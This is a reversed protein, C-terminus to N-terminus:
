SIEPCDFIPRATAVDADKFVLAGVPCSEVMVAITKRDANLFLTRDGPLIRQEFGRGSLTMVPAKILTEAIRVCTRCQICKHGDYIVDPYIEDRKYARCRGAYKGQDAGTMTAYNRLRCDMASRCGCEICRGAEADAEEATLGGEVEAFSRIRDEPALTRSQVRPTKKRNTFIKERIEDSIEMAHSYRKTEGLVPEGSLFQHISVAARRGAAVAHVATGPGEVCDGGAFVGPLPTELTQEDVRVTGQGSGTRGNATLLQRELPNEMWGADVRQGAAIILSDCDVSVAEAPDYQPSFQGESDYVRVCRMLELGSVEDNRCFIHKIGWGNNIKIGEAMAARIEEDEAPMETNSELCYVAVAKAGKRLATRASDMAVGGGGIVIVSPGTKKGAGTNHARLYSIASFVNEATEGALDLSRPAQAGIGFFVADYDQRLKALSIDRGIRVNARLDIGMYELYSLERSVVERPLRYEPIGYRLMGGPQENQDFVTCAQGLIRLYYAASLGAPGAGVIAVRKGGSPLMQPMVDQKPDISDFAYRKLRCIDVPDDLLQRRCVAECPRHCIRGLVGPFPVACRIIELAKRVEGRGMCSIFGPIDIGAPCADACPAACDGLHDSLLLEICTQRAQKVRSTATRVVMGNLVETSCAPVLDPVGDVEVVCMYCVAEPVLRRSHCFTPIFVGAKEAAALITTGSAIFLSIGDITIKVQKM